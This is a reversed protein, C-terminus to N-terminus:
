NKPQDSFHSLEIFFLDDHVVPAYEILIAKYLENLLSPHNKKLFDLDLNELLLWSFLDCQLFPEMLFMNFALIEIDTALLSFLGPM